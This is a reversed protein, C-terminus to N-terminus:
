DKQESMIPWKSIDSRSVFIMISMFILFILVVFLLGRFIPMLFILSFVVTLLFLYVGVVRTAFRWGFVNPCYLLFMLATLVIAISFTTFLGFFRILYAVFLYYFVDIIALFLYHFANFKVAYIQSFFFIVVLFLILSMPSYIMLSQIQDLYMQKALFAVGMDQTTSFDNVTFQIVTGGDSTKEETHPIGERYIAYEDTNLKIVGTLGEIVENQYASLNYKFIDMGKTSYTIKVEVQEGAALAPLLVVSKDMVPHVVLNDKAPITITYDYLINANQPKTVKVQLEGAYKTTNVVVYTENNHAEFANFALLSRIKEGYVVDSDINISHPVLTFRETRAIEEYQEADKNYQSETYSRQLAFEPPVIGIEGGWADQFQTYAYGYTSSRQEGVRAATLALILSGAVALGGLWVLMGFIRGSANM